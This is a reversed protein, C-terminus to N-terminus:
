NSPALLQTNKFRMIAGGWGVSGGGVAACYYVQEGEGDLSTSLSHTEAPGLFWLRAGFTIFGAPPQIVHQQHVRSVLGGQQLLVQVRGISGIPEKEWPGSDLHLKGVSGQKVSIQEM